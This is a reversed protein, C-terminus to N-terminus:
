ASVLAPEYEYVQAFEDLITQHLEARDVRVGLQEMSTVPKTLGCPVIYQFYNLDTTWNLAFGHTTVWRSIHVGVACVKAGNVWVGAAGPDRVGEIGYRRLTRIIVEELARIYAVVDRKWERLDLIPYGVIQGPGHYTIDGGRNIEFYEIGLAALRDRSLLINEEHGNRGLTLVHPHEVLLFQDPILGQKRQEALSKQLDWAEGYALRGLERVQLKRM